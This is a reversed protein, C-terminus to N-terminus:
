QTHSQAMPYDRKGGNKFAGSVWYLCGHYASSIVREFAVCAGFGFNGLALCFSFRLGGRLRLLCPLSWSAIDRVIMVELTVFRVVWVLTIAIGLGRNKGPQM